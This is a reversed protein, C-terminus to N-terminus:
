RRMPTAAFQGLKQTDALIQNVADPLFGSDFRMPQLAIHGAIIRVELRFGSVDDAEVKMRRLVRGHKTPILFAGNLREIAQVGHQRQARSV